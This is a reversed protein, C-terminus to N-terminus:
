HDGHDVETTENTTDTARPQPKELQKVTVSTLRCRGVQSRGVFAPPLPRKTTTM